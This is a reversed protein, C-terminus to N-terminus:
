NIEIKKQDLLFFHMLIAESFYIKLFETKFKKLNDFDISPYTELVYQNQLGFETKESPKNEGKQGGFTHKKKSRTYKVISPYIVRGYWVSKPGNKPCIKQRKSGKFYM